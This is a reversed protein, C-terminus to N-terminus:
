CSWDIPESLKQIDIIDHFENDDYFHVRHVILANLFKWRYRLKKSYWCRWRWDSFSFNHKGYLKTLWRQLILYRQKPDMRISDHIITIKSVKEDSVFIWIHFKSESHWLHTDLSYYVGKGNILNKQYSNGQLAEILNKEQMGLNIVINFDELYLGKFYRQKKM